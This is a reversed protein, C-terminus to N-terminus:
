HDRVLDGWMRSKFKQGAITERSLAQNREVLEWEELTIEAEASRYHDNRIAASVRRAELSEEETISGTALVRGIIELASEKQGTYALAKAVTLASENDINQPMEIESLTRALTNVGSNRDTEGSEMEGIINKLQETKQAFVETQRIQERSTEQISIAKQDDPKARLAQEAMVEAEEYNGTELQVEAFLGLIDSNHDSKCSQLLTEYLVIFQERSDEDLSGDMFQAHLTKYQFTEGDYQVSTIFPFGIMLIPFLFFPLLVGIKKGKVTNWVFAFILAAFLIAGAIMLVAEHPCLHQIFLQTM